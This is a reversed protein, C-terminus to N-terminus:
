CLAWIIIALVIGVRARRWLQGRMGAYVGEMRESYEAILESRLHEVDHGKRLLKNFSRKKNTLGYKRELRTITAHCPLCLLQCKNVEEMIEDKSCGRKALSCISDKKDFMNIHDYHMNADQIGCFTCPNKYLKNLWEPFSRKPTVYNPVPDLVILDDMVFDGNDPVRTLDITIGEVKKRVM